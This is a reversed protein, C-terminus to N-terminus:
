SIVAELQEATFNEAIGHKGLLYGVTGALDLQHVKQLGVAIMRLYRASPKTYPRRETPSTFSLVPYGDQEGCDIIKDYYGTGDGMTVHGISRLLKMDLRVSDDRESEQAAIQEFQRATILYAKGKTREDRDQLSLFAVGGTWFSSDGAFYLSQPLEIACDAVPMTTDDCGVFSRLSGPPTGGTIYHTFRGTDMNSGYSAYWVLQDPEYEGPQTSRRSSM